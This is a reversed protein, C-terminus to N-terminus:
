GQELLQKLRAIDMNNARRIAGAMFPAVFRSFGIPEGRNRLTM